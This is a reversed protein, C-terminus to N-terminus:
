IRQGDKFCFTDINRVKQDLDEITYLIRQAEEAAPIKPYVGIIQRMARIRPKEAELLAAIVERQADPQEGSFYSITALRFKVFAISSMFHLYITRAICFDEFGPVRVLEDFNAIADFPNEIGFSEALIQVGKRWRDTLKTLFYIVQQPTFYPCWESLNNTARGDNPVWYWQMPAEELAFIWELGTGHMHPGYYILMMEFPFYEFAEDFELWARYAFDAKEKGYIRQAIARVEADIDETTFDDSQFVKSGLKAMPTNADGGYNWCGM